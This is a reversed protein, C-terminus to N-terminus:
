KQLPIKIKFDPKNRDTKKKKHGFKTIIACTNCESTYVPRTASINPYIKILM